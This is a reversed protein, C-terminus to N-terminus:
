KHITRKPITVSLDPSSVTMNIKKLKINKLRSASRTRKTVQPHTKSVLQVFEKESRRSIRKQDKLLNRHRELQKVAALNVSDVTTSHHFIPPDSTVSQQIMNEPNTCSWKNLLQEEFVPIPDIVQLQDTLCGVSDPLQITDDEKQYVTEIKHDPIKEELQHIKDSKNPQDIDVTKNSQNIDVTKHSQQMDAMKHEEEISLTESCDSDSSESSYESEEDQDNSVVKWSKNTNMRAMTIFPNDVKKLSPTAQLALMGTYSVSPISSKWLIRVQKSSFDETQPVQVNQVVQIGDDESLEVFNGFFFKDKIEEPTECEDESDSSLRRDVTKPPLLRIPVPSVGKEFEDEELLSRRRMRRVKKEEDILEGAFIINRSKNFYKEVSEISKHYDIGTKRRRIVGVSTRRRFRKSTSQEELKVKDIIQMAQESMMDLPLGLELIPDQDLHVRRRNQKQCRVVEEKSLHDENEADDESEYSDYSSEGGESDTTDYVSTDKSSLPVAMDEDLAGVFSSLETVKTEDSVSETTFINFDDDNDQMFGQWGDVGGEDQSLLGRHSQFTEKHTSIKEPSQVVDTPSALLRLGYPNHIRDLEEVVYQNLLPIQSRTTAMSRFREISSTIESVMRKNKEIADLARTRTRSLMHLKRVHKNFAANFDQLAKYKQTELDDRRRTLNQTSNGLDIKEKIMNKFRLSKTNRSLKLEAVDHDITQIRRKEKELKSIAQELEERLESTAISVQMQVVTVQKAIERRIRLSRSADSALKMNELEIDSIRQEFREVCSANSATETDIANIYMQHEHAARRWLNALEETRDKNNFSSMCLAFAQERFELGPDLPISQYCDIIASVDSGHFTSAFYHGGTRYNPIGHQPIKSFPVLPKQSTISDVMKYGPEVNEGNRFVLLDIDRDAIFQHEGVIANLSHHSIGMKNMYVKIDSSVNYRRIIESDRSVILAMRNIRTARIVRHTQQLVQPSVISVPLLTAATKLRSTELVGKWLGLCSVDRWTGDTQIQNFASIESNTFELSSLRTRHRTLFEKVKTNVAIDIPTNGSDDKSYVCAGAKVLLIVIELYKSETHKCAVHLATEGSENKIAVAYSGFEAFKAIPLQDGAGWENTGVKEEEIDMAGENEELYELHELMTGNAQYLEIAETSFEMEEQEVKLKGKRMQKQMKKLQLTMYHVKEPKKRAEVSRLTNVISAADGTDAYHHLDTTMRITTMPHDYTLWSHLQDRPDYEVPSDSYRKNLKECWRVFFHKKTDMAARWIMQFRTANWRKRREIYTKWTKWACLFSLKTLDGKWSLIVKMCNFFVPQSSFIPDMHIMMANSVSQLAADWKNLYKEKLSNFIQSSIYRKVVKLKAKRTSWTQWALMVRRQLRLETGRSRAHNFWARITFVLRSHLYKQIALAESERKSVRRQRYFIFRGLTRQKLAIIGLHDVKAKLLELRLNRALWLDWEKLKLDYTRLPLGNRSRSLHSSWRFWMHFAINQKEPAWMVHSRQVRKIHVAAETRRVNKIRLFARWGAIVQQKTRFEAVVKMRELLLQEEERQRRLLIHNSSTEMLVLSYETEERIAFNRRGGLKHLRTFVTNNQMTGVRGVLRRTEKANGVANSWQNIMRRKLSIASLKSIKAHLIWASLFVQCSQIQRKIYRRYKKRRNTMRWWTQLRVTNPGQKRKAKFARLYAETSEEGYKGVRKKKYKVINSVELREDEKKINNRKELASIRRSAANIITELQVLEEM